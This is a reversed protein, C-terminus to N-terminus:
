GDDCEGKEFLDLQAPEVADFVPTRLCVRRILADPNKQRLYPLVDEARGVHVEWIYPLSAIGPLRGEVPTPGGPWLAVHIRGYERRLRGLWALEEKTPKDFYGEVVVIKKVGRERM